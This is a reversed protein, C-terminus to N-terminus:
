KYNRNPEALSLYFSPSSVGKKFKMKLSALTNGSTLSAAAATCIGLLASLNGETGCGEWYGHLFITYFESHKFSRSHNQKNM